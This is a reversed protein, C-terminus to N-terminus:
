LCSSLRPNGREIGSSRKADRNDTFAQIIKSALTSHLQAQRANEEALVANKGAAVEDMMDETGKVILM